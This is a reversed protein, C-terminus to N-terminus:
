QGSGGMRLEVGARCRHDDLTILLAHRPIAHPSGDYVVLTCKRFLLTALTLRPDPTLESSCEREGIANGLCLEDTFPHWSSVIGVGLVDTDSGGYELQIM